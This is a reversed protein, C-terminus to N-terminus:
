SGSSQIVEHAIEAFDRAVQDWGFDAGHKRAGESLRERLSTDTALEIWRRAFEGESEVIIGSTDRVISDRVGPVDFGVSPTGVLAAETIVIGWGEHQAPHLLAWARSLLLWKEQDGVRGVFEVSDGALTELTAREPGDGIVVLRGGVVPQVEKWVRLLLDIRKHPMLRGASVFLPTTPREGGTGSPPAVGPHLLHIRDRDVGIAELASATSPSVAVFPAKRYVLPMVRAETFRGVSALAPPFRQDWQDTHVHHVFALTPKRRWLPSFFPLGNENDVLLDWDRVTRHHVFPARAYQGFTGGMDFVPYPREGVPGGCLLAVEHGM